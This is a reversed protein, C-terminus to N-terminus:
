LAGGSDIMYVPIGAEFESRPIRVWSVYEKLIEKKYSSFFLIKLVIHSSLYIANEIFISEIIFSYMCKEIDLSCICVYTSLYVYIRFM